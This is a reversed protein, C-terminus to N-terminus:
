HNTKVDWYDRLQNGIIMFSLVLLVILTGPIIALYAKGTVIYNYHNKIIIGWSPTPPQAGLGLFSLGSEVLISAAFNSASIVIVPGIINPLIHKTIIKFNSLGLVKAAEIYQLNKVSKTQGRVVRAVEVWMTLGVAIYIQWLGKGLSVTIAIVLLITPISWTVNILWMIISDIVGGFYGALAGLALGIILSISVAIIGISFSIRAGVILRSLLDRGYKDTGLWFTKKIIKTHDNKLISLTAEQNLLQYEITKEGIKYNNNIPTEKHYIQSGSILTSWLSEQTEQSSEQLMYTSFGPPKTQITVHMTNANATSDPAIAYAFLAIFAGFSIFGVCLNALLNKSFMNKLLQM